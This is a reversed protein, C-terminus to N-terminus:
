VWTFHPDAKWSAHPGAGAVFDNPLYQLADNAETCSPFNRFVFRLFSRVGFGERAAIRCDQNVFTVHSKPHKEDEQAILDFRVRSNLRVTELRPTHTLIAELTEEPAMGEPIEFPAPIYCYRHRVIVDNSLWYEIQALSGDNFVVSYSNSNFDEFYADVTNDLRKPTGKLQGSYIRIAGDVAQQGPPYHFAILGDGSLKGLLTTLARVNM